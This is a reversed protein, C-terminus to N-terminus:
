SRAEWGKAATWHLLVQQLSDAMCVRWTGGGLRGLAAAAEMVESCALEDAADFRLVDTWAGSNNVQLKVPKKAVSV